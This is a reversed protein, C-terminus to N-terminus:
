EKITLKKAMNWVLFFAVFFIITLIASGWLKFNDNGDSVLEILFAGGSGVFAVKFLDALSLLVDIKKEIRDEDM